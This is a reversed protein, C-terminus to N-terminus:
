ERFAEVLVRAGPVAAFARCREEIRALEDAARTCPIGFKERVRESAITLASRSLNCFDAVAYSQGVQFYDKLVRSPSYCSDLAGDPWRVSMRM